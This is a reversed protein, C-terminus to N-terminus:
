LPVVALTIALAAGLLLLAPVLVKRFAPAGLSAGIVLKLVTNSLIGIAIARAAMGVVLGGDLRSMTMTLADVDTLGLVAATSYVGATGWRDRAFAIAAMAVQFVLAMEIASRLRLPNRIEDAPPAHASPKQRRWGIFTIVLGAIFTPWLLRALPLGMSADIFTSIVVVRPLLVTSAAIAGFALADGRANGTRSRRSFNLTVLTSSVVGGSAGTVIEGLGAGLSRQLLYAVFNLGSFLLVFAWVARPRLALAGFFPGEPLLPLVVLALVAFQLTAQLESRGVRGVLWHLRTKESLVLVVLSGAAAALLMSGAGALAGLSVVVLAAAETTGGIDHDPRRAAMVYAAVALAMGSAIIVAGVLQASISMLLGGTGGLLGLVLFTRLGAFRVDQGSAQVSWERELGVGTGILAAIALRVGADLESLPAFMVADNVSYV